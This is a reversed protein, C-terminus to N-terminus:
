ALLTGGGTEVIAALDRAALGRPKLEISNARVDWVTEELVVDLNLSVGRPDRQGALRAMVGGRAMQHAVQWPEVTAGGISTMEYASASISNSWGTRALGKALIADLRAEATAQSIIGLTTLDVARERIAVGQSLDQRGVVRTVGPKPSYMGTLTTWYDEDVPSLEGSGPILRLAPTTPDNTTYLVGHPDVVLNRGVRLAYADLLQLLSNVGDTTGEATLPDGFDELSGINVAGRAAAWYLAAGVDSTPGSLDFALATEAQRISGQATFANEDFDAETLTGRWVRTMGVKAVVEAGVVIAPHRWGRPYDTTWTAEWAGYPFRHTVKDPAYHGLHSLAVGNVYISLHTM